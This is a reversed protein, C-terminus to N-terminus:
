SSVVVPFHIYGVDDSTGAFYDVPEEKGHSHCLFRSLYRFVDRFFFFAVVNVLSLYDDVFPVIETTRFRFVNDM